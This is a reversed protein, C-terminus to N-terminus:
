WGRCNCVVFHCCVFLSLGGTSAPFPAANGGVQVLSRFVEKTTLYAVVQAFACPSVAEQEGVCVGCAWLALNSCLMFLGNPM